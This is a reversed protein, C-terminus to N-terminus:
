PPPVTPSPLPTPPAAPTRTPTPPPPRQTATAALGDGSIIPRGSTPSPRATTTPQATPHAATAVPLGGTGGGLVAHAADIWPSGQGPLRVQYWEGTPSVARVTLQAGARLTAVVAYGAGPGQRLNAGRPGVIVYAASLPAAATPASDTAQYTVAPAATTATAPSTATAAPLGNGWTWPVWTPSPTPTVLPTAVQAAIAPAPTATNGAAPLTRGDAAILLAAVLLALLPVTYRLTGLKRRDPRLNLFKRWLTSGRWGGGAVRWGSKGGGWRVEHIRGARELVLVLERARGAKSDGPLDDFDIGLRFCLTRLGDLSLRRCLDAHLARLTPLPTPLDAWAVDPRFATLRAPLEALRGRRAAATVLAAARQSDSEGPLAAWDLGLEAALAAWQAPELYAVIADDIRM